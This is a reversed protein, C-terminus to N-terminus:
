AAYEMVYRKAEDATMEKDEWDNEIVGGAAAVADIADCIAQKQAPTDRQAM